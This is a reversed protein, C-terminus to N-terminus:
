RRMPRWRPGKVLGSAFGFGQVRTRQANSGGAMAKMEARQLQGRRSAWLARMQEWASRRPHSGPGNGSEKAASATKRGSASSFVSLRTAVPPPLVSSLLAPLSPGRSRGAQRQGLRKEVARRHAADTARALDAAPFALRWGAPFAWAKHAPLPLNASM